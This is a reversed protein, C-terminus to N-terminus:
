QLKKIHIILRDNKACESDAFHHSIIRSDCTNLISKVNIDEWDCIEDGKRPGKGFLRCDDVIIFAEENLNNIIATLEEYLPCDKKGKGTNGASWHGDLFFVTRTNIKKCIFPTLISSDGLHFNINKKDKYLNRARDCFAKKIEITHVTNFVESAMVTTEAMYTGTEVFTTYEEFMKENSNFVNDLIFKKDISPMISM